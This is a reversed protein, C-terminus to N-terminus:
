SSRRELAMSGNDAEDIVYNEKELYMRLLKRIREEDDVILLRVARDEM